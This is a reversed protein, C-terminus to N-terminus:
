SRARTNKANSYAGELRLDRGLMINQPVADNTLDDLRQFLRNLNTDVPLVVFQVFSVHYGITELMEQAQHKRPGIHRSPFDSVKPLLEDLRNSAM